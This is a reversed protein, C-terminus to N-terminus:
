YNADIKLITHLLVNVGNAVDKQRSFEKPSHSIGGASPVFIMGIATIHAMVQADHGAGSPMVLWSLGLEGAAESLFRRIGPDTPAPLADEVQKFSIKTQTTQAIERSKNQIQKFISQIKKESLDRIELSMSVSGPIVNYAGPKASIKGVTAVQTGPISRVLRNIEVTLHAAALLADRRLNMPTTGAHNAKGEVLIDWWKIGVIGEVVGVQLNQSDLVAGQEIHIELYAKVEGKKRAAKQLDDPNGGLDLVGQRVTKGSQSLMSLANDDLQGTMGRSGTLGGEENTFVVVQLPHNPTINNELLVEICEIAALVGLPGDYKGGNPVSDIHSGFLIPPLNPNGGKLTGTINAAEDITVALGNKKMLAIIFERGQIDEKTFAVRNVGGAPTAGIKALEMIRNNLRESNIRLDKYMGDGEAAM